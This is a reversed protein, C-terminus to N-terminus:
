DYSPRRLPLPARATSAPTAAAPVAPRPRHKRAPRIVGHYAAALEARGRVGLKQFINGLHVKVTAQSIALREALERNGLGAAAHRLVERERESLGRELDATAGRPSLGGAMSEAWAEIARRSAWIQGEHVVRVAKLLDEPRASKALIGRAGATLAQTVWEPDTPTAVLVVRPGGDRKVAACRGFTGDMRGDLILVHSATAEVVAYERDHALIRM